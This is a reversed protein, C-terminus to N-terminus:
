QQSEAYARDIFVCIHLKSLNSIEEIKEFMAPVEQEKM